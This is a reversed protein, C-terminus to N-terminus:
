TSAGGDMVLDLGVAYTAETCLWLVASVVEDLRAVRQSPNTATIRKDRAIIDEGERYSLHTNVPGPSVGNVRIGFPIAELAATKTLVTLAAKSAAYAGMGPRTLHFGVNSIINVIAGAGLPKMALLEHKMCLWTGVTNLTIVQNFEELAMEDLAGSRVIGACNVAIDIKKYTQIAQHVVQQVDKENTVDTKVPLFSGGIKHIEQGTQELESMTRGALVVIAGEKALAIAVAQGIGAGAGTVIAIQKDLRKKM